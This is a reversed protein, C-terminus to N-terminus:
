QICLIEDEMWGLAEARTSVAVQNVPAVAPEACARHERSPAVALRLIEGREDAIRAAAMNRRFPSRTLHVDNSSGPPDYRQRLDAVM